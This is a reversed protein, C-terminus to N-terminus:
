LLKLNVYKVAFGSWEFTTRQWDGHAKNSSFNGIFDRRLSM